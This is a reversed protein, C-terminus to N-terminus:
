AGDPYFVEVIAVWDSRLASWVVRFLLSVWYSAPGNSFDWVKSGGGRYDVRFWPSDEDATHHCAWPLLLVHGTARVFHFVSRSPTPLRSPSLPNSLRHRGSTIPRGLTRLGLAACRSRTLRRRKAKCNLFLTRTPRWGPSGTAISRRRRLLPALPPCYSERLSSYALRARLRQFNWCSRSSSDIFPNARSL